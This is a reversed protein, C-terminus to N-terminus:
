SRGGVLVRDGDRLDAAPEVIVTEGESLGALVEEGRVHVLRLRAIDRDAVFVSTVQGRRVVASAPVILVRRGAGPFRARGFMGSRLGGSDPLAIKVLFARADADVARSIESVVGKATRREGESGDLLVDVGAGPAISGLRSEDVRVELRFAQTDEVRLLPAGPSAMNGVEVMTGTVLGDFPATIRTYSGTIQIAEHAAGAGEVLAAAQQARATASAVRAEAGRLAETAADLEQATASKKTHLASVRDHTARALALSAQAAREEAAAATAGQTAALAMAQASRAQASLDRGDLTLLLQGARVRDGPAVRIEQVPALIRATLTATTRAQVIGGAELMDTVDSAAVTAVRVTTTSASDPSAPERAPACAVLTTSGILVAGGAALLRRRVASTTM